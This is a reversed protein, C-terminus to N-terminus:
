IVKQVLWLAVLFGVISFDKPIDDSGNSDDEDGNVPDEQPPDPSTPPKAQDIEDLYEVADNNSYAFHTMLYQMAYTWSILGASYAAGVEGPTRYGGLGGVSQRRPIQIGGASGGGIATTKVM